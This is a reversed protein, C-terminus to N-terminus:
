DSVVQVVLERTRPGDFEALMVSQWTGLVLEGDEVPVSLDPGVLSARLHSDANGDLADHAHGEDSVLDSLFDEIDSVLRSENENVLLGATTHRAFVTCVGTAGDPIRERLEDTVDVLCTRDPTKVEFREM